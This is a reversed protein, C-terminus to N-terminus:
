STWWAFLVLDGTIFGYIGAIVEIFSTLLHLWFASFNAAAIWGYQTSMLNEFSWALPVTDSLGVGSIQIMLWMEPDHSWYAFITVLWWVTGFIAQAM